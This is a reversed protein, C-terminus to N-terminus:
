GLVRESVGPWQRGIHFCIARGADLAVRYNAALLRMSKMPRVM